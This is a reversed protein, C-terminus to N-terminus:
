SGMGEVEGAWGQGRHTGILPLRCRQEIPLHWRLVM